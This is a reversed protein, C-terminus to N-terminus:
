PHVSQVHIVPVLRYPAVDHCKFKRYKNSRAILTGATKRDYLPVSENGKFYHRVFQNGDFKCPESHEGAVVMYLKTSVRCSSPLETLKFSTSRQTLVILPKAGKINPSKSMYKNHMQARVPLNLFKTRHERM